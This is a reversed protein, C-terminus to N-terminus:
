IDLHPSIMLVTSVEKDEALWQFFVPIKCSFMLRYELETVAM